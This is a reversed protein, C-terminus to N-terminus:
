AGGRRPVTAGGRRVVPPRVRRRRRLSRSPPNGRPRRRRGRWVGATRGRGSLGAWAEARHPAGITPSGSGRRTLRRGVGAQPLRASIRRPASEAPQQLPQEGGDARRVVGAGRTARRHVRRSAGVVDGPRRRAGGAAFTRGLSELLRETESPEYTEPSLGADILLRRFFTSCILCDTGASITHCFIWIAREGFVPVVIDRLDYWGIYADFSPVSHLLTRQMNTVRGDRAIKRDYAATQEPTFATDPLPHILTEPMPHGKAPRDLDIKRRHFAGRRARRVFPDHRDAGSSPPSRRGASAVATVPSRWVPDRRRSTTTASRASAGCRRTGPSTAVPPARSFRTRCSVRMSCCWTPPSKAGGAGPSSPFGPRAGRAPSGRIAPASSSNPGLEPDPVSVIAERALFHPDTFIQDMAQVPALAVEALEFRTLVEDLRPDLLSERLDRSRDGSGPRFPRTGPARDPDLLRRLPGLPSRRLRVPAAAATREPRGQDGRLRGHGRHDFRLGTAARLARGTGLRHVLGPNDASLRDWGLGWRELTGPRFNEIVVDATAALRRVTTQAEPDHLDLAVLRKNRALRKWDLASGNKENGVARAPDDAPHEVKIVDAGFDALLM